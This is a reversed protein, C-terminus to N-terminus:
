QDGHYTTSCRCSSSGEQLIRQHKMWDWCCSKFKTASSCRPSDQSSIESSNLQSVMLEIWPKQVSIFKQVVDIQRGMGHKISPEREDKWPCLVSDSFVYVRTRQLSIVQKMVLWLCISGHLTNEWNITKWEMSRVQNNPCWNRLYTLCRDWQSIMEIKSPIGIDSYNKGIFVSAQLTSSMFMGWIVSHEESDGTADISSQKQRKRVQDSVRHLFSRSGLSLESETEDDEIVFQHAGGQPCVVRRGTRITSRLKRVWLVKVKTDPRRRAKQICYFTACWSDKRQM